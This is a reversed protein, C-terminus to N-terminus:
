AELLKIGFGPADPVHLKGDKLVYGSTDAGPVEGTVGEVTLVNGFGAALHATYYTKLPSGWTHPSTIINKAILEPMLARWPTFGYGLTDPIFVQVLGEKNLALLQEKDFGAEGEAIRMPRKNDDHWKRLRLLDERKEHFPEEIWYLPVDGIGDLYRLFSDVTFGNNGDVLVKCDPFAEAVRRTVEIDRRLGAEAEMWKNGRGIKLKLQRYGRAHDSACNELVKAIGAPNEPPDLDDMYIMGTYCPFVRETNDGLLAYVPKDLIVGALDHLAIDLFRLAPDTVGVGADILAGVPKGRLAARAEEFRKDDASGHGWGLAGQDTEIVTARIRPGTGHVGKSSNRGVLRPYRAQLNVRRLDAIRHANLADQHAAGRASLALPATAATLLFDRRKM